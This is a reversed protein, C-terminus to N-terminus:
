TGREGGRRLASFFGGEHKVTAIGRFHIGRNRETKGTNGPAIEIGEGGPLPDPHPSDICRSLGQGLGAIGEGGPLPDPHPSDICRTLGQGLGAIGEGEPLPDPHPSDICSTLGWGM